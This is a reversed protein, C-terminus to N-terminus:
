GSAGILAGLKERVKQQNDQGVILGLAREVESSISKCVQYDKYILHYNNKLKFNSQVLLENRKELEDIKLRIM